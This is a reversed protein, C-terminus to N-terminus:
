KYQITKHLLPSITLLNLILHNIGIFDPTSDCVDDPPNSAAIPLPHINSDTLDLQHFSPRIITKKTEPNYLLVGAKHFPAPGVYYHSCSNDSLKTQLNSPNHAVVRCGFPM